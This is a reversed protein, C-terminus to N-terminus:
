FFSFLKDFHRWVQTLIPFLSPSHTSLVVRPRSGLNPATVESVNIVEDQLQKVKSHVFNLLLYSLSYLSVSFSLNSTCLFSAMMLSGGVDISAFISKVCSLSYLLM